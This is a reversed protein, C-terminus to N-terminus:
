RRAQGPPRSRLSLARRRHAAADRPHTARGRQSYLRLGGATREPTVVAYRTEWARLVEPSEGVRRSLEGIRLRGSEAM